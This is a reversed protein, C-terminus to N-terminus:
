PAALLLVAFGLTSRGWRVHAEHWSRAHALLDAGDPAYPRAAVFKEVGALCADEYRDREGRSADVVGRVAFGGAEALDRLGDLDTLDERKTGLVELYADDPAALWHCEGVVARGGPRLLRRAADLTAAFGGCAHTSGVCMVVDFSAPDFSSADFAAEIWTAPAGQRRSGNKRALEIAHPWPDVGVGRGEAREVSRLLLEGRGCGVDLIRAGPDHGAFAVIREIAADGLPNWVALGEHAIASLRRRDM